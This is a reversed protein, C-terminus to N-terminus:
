WTPLYILIMVWIFTVVSSKFSLAILIDYVEFIISNIQLVVEYQTSLIRRLNKKEESHQKVKMEFASFQQFNLFIIMIMECMTENM